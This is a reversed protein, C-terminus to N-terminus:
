NPHPDRSENSSKLDTQSTELISKLKRYDLPKRLLDRAGDKIAAGALEATAYGTMLIVPRGPDKSLLSRPLDIGSTGPMM